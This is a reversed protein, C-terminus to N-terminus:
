HFASSKKELYENPSAGVWEGVTSIFEWQLYSLDEKMPSEHQSSLIKTLAM